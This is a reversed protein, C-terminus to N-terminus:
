ETRAIPRRGLAYGLAAWAFALVAGVLSVATLSQTFSILTASAWGSLADGGRYVVTDLFSKARYRVDEAVGTFLIERGPRIFAYEGVRRIGMVAAVVAFVPWIALVLFGAGVLLPIASLLGTVGFRRAFRGVLFVQCILSVAQVVGDIISFVRVQANRTPFTSAVLRAQEFYLFTSATTLLIVFAGLCLLYPSRAVLSFGTFPNGAVPRRRSQAQQVTDRGARWALLRAKAYVAAGLLLASVVLLGRVSLVSVMAAGFLPGTVGGISAGGAIFGFVRKAQETDFIDAMLSWAVSVVFLNFVSLWVFFVRAVWPSAPWLSLLAAFAFMNLAFFGYVWDIFRARPVHANLWGHLPIAVLMVVFTASFLWQLNRVGGAIGMADRVPRLIAYSTFLFFFLGCGWLVAAVEDPQANIARILWGRWGTVPVPAQPDVHPANECTM